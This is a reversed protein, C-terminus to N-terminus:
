LHKRRTEERNLLKCIQPSDVTGFLYIIEQWREAEQRLIDMMELDKKTDANRIYFTTGTTRRLKTKDAPGPLPSKGGFVIPELIATLIKLRNEMTLVSEEPFLMYLKQARSYAVAARSKYSADTKATHRHRGRSITSRAPIQREIRWVM